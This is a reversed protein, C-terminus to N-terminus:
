KADNCSYGCSTGSPNSSSIMLISSISTRIRGVSSSTLFSSLCIEVEQDSVSFAEMWDVCSECRFPICALIMADEDPCTPSSCELRVAEDEGVLAREVERLFDKRRAILAIMSAKPM